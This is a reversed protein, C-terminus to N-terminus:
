KANAASWSVPELSKALLPPALRGLALLLALLGRCLREPRGAPRGM